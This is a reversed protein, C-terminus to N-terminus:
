AEPPASPIPNTPRVPDQIKALPDLLFQAVDEHGWERAYDYATKGTHDVESKNAQLEILKRVCALHGNQAALRLSYDVNKIFQTTDREEYSFQDKKVQRYNSPILFEILHAHGNKMAEPILTEAKASNFYSTYYPPIFAFLYELVDRHGNAAAEKTGEVLFSSYGIQNKFHQYHNPNTEIFFKVIELKGSKAAHKMDAIRQSYSMPTLNEISKVVNLNGSEIGCMLATNGDNNKMKLNSRATLLINVMREDGNKAAIMLATNGNDDTLNILSTGQSLYKSVEDHKRNHVGELLYPLDMKTKLLLKAQVIDARTKQISKEYGGFLFGIVVIKLVNIVFLKVSTGTSNLKKETVDVFKQIKRQIQNVSKRSELSNPSLEIKEISDKCLQTLTRPMGSIKRSSSYSDLSINWDVLQKSVNLDISM